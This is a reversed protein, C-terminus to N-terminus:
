EGFIRTSQLEEIKSKNATMDSKLKNAASNLQPSPAGYGPTTHTLTTQCFTDINAHLEELYEKLVSFKVYPQMM